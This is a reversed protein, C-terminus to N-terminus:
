DVFEFELGEVVVTDGNQVGHRRLAEYVGIKGLLRQLYRITAPNTTDMRALFRALGAGEVVYKENERRITFKKLDSRRRRGTKEDWEGPTFEAKYLIMDERPEPAQEPGGPTRVAAPLPSGARAEKILQYARYLVEKLGAKTAASIPYCERGDKAAEAALRAINTEAQPLDTKNALVLQPYGALKEHYQALEHNITRYDEVPDRGEVGAADVVHLIVRTREIHRLFDHGLGAGKHAGEILGPVDAVVFSEEPGLRVVGLNPALTTFPYNAIKPRAASVAAIFTSKGANPYGVLCADALLKLELLLEKEEGKEGLEAFRPAQRTSTAFHVNGRGGRGGQAAVFREGPALMDCLLEGTGALRVETGPPVKLVVDNGNRGHKRSGQGHGGSGAQYHRRYTYDILTSLNNDVELIISGGDGGDGGDPGGAPVYKERRFSVAGNGGDGAKVTIRAIDYFAAGM